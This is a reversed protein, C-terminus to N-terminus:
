ETMFHRQRSYLEAARYRSQTLIGDRLSRALEKAEFTGQLEGLLRVGQRAYAGASNPLLPELPTGCRGELDLKSRLHMSVFSVIGKELASDNQAATGAAERLLDAANKYQEEQASYYALYAAAAGRGWLTGSACASQYARSFLSQARNHDEMQFAMRGYHVCLWPEEVWPGGALLELARRYSASAQAFDGKCCMVCGHVTGAAATQLRVCASDPLRELLRSAEALYYLAKDQEGRLHFCAGRLRLCAASWVANRSQGALQEGAAIYREAINPKQQFVCVSALLICSRLPLEWSDKARRGTLGSLINRGQTWDGSFLALRGRILTLSQDLGETGGWLRAQDLIRRCVDAEATWDFGSLFASDAGVVPSPECCRSTSLDLGRIRWTLSQHPDSALRYQEAIERCLEGTPVAQEELLVQAARRHHEQREALSQRSSINELEGSDLFRWREEPGEETKRVLGAELLQTLGLGLDEERGGSLAALRRSSAQGCFVALLRAAFLANGSLAQARKSGAAANRNWEDMLQYYFETTKRQPVTGLEEQLQERLRQYVEAARPYNRGTRFREMLFMAVSEDCPEERLYDSALLIGREEEGREAAERAARFLLSLYRERLAERTREMWIDFSFTQKVSFGQLFEGHYFSLGDEQMFRDYDCEVEWAPNVQLTTKNRSLLFDGGLAKKLFYVTNRLNKLGKADDVGEWLLATLEHRTASRRVLMYYFLADVRKFPFVIERGDLEVRPTQLMTVTLM